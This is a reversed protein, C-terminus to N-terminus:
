GHDVEQGCWRGAGTVVARTGGALLVVLGRSELDRIASDYCVARLPQVRPATRCPPVWDVVTDGAPYGYLLDTSYEAETAPRQRRVLEGAKDIRRLLRRTEPGLVDRLTEAEELGADTPEISWLWCAHEGPIKNPLTLLGRDVLQRIVSTKVTQWCREPTVDTRYWRDDIRRLPSAAAALLVIRGAPTM